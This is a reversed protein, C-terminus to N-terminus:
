VEVRHDFRRAVQRRLVLLQRREVRGRDLLGVAALPRAPARATAWRSYARLEFARKQTISATRANKVTIMPSVANWSIWVFKPM